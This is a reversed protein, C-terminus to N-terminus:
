GVSAPLSGRYRVLGLRRAYVRGKVDSINNVTKVQMIEAGGGTFGTGTLDALVGEFLLSDVPIEQSVFLQADLSIVVGEPNVAQSARYEWRCRIQVPSAVKPEGQWDDGTKSWLVAYQPLSKIAPHPM